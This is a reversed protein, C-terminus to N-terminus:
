VLMNVAQVDCGENLWDPYDSLSYSGPIPSM